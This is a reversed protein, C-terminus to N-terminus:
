ASTPKALFIKWPHSTLELGDKATRQQDRLLTHTIQRNLIMVNSLTGVPTSKDRLVMQQESSLESTIEISSKIPVIRSQEKHVTTSGTVAKVQAFRNTRRGSIGLRAISSRRLLRNEVFMEVRLDQYPALLPLEPVELTM